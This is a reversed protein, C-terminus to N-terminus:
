HDRYKVFLTGTTRHLSWPCQTWRRHSIPPKFRGSLNAPGSSWYSVVYTLRDFFECLHSNWNVSICLTLEEYSTPEERADRQCTATTAELDLLKLLTKTASSCNHYPKFHCPKFVMRRSGVFVKRGDSCRFLHQIFENWVPNIRKQEPATSM